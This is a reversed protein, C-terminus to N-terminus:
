VSWSCFFNWFKQKLLNLPYIVIPVSKHYTDYPLYWILGLISNNLYFSYHLSSCNSFERHFHLKLASVVLYIFLLFVLPLAWLSSGRKTIRGFKRGRRIVQFDHEDRRLDTGVIDRREPILDNSHRYFAMMTWRGTSLYSGDWRNCLKFKEIAFDVFCHSLINWPIAWFKNM